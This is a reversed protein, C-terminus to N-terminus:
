QTIRAIEQKLEPLSGESSLKINRQKNRRKREEEVKNKKVSDDALKAGHAYWYFEFDDLSQLSGFARFAQELLEEQVNKPQKMKDSITAKLILFPPDQERDIAEDITKMAEEQISQKYQSLALNFLPASNRMSLRAAERYYKEERDHDGLEGAIIGMRNLILSKPKTRSLNILFDMAREKHGLKCELEVIEMVIQQQVRESLEKSRMQEELELIKNREVRPNDIASLPNEVTSEFGQEPGDKLSLRLHLVQNADMRYRLILSDGKSVIPQIKWTKNWLTRDDADLLEVKLPVEKTLSNEPVMLQKNEAWEGNAPFPLKTRNKILSVSGRKTNIKISSGTVPQILGKGRVALSLAQWAAGHAVATQISEMDNFRLIKAYAFYDEVAKDIQPILSSGGVLLCYNIEEPDLEVRNLVDELPAFVSCMQFYETERHYLLSRELFPKLVEDLEVASLNPSKLRLITGNRLTCSHEGPLKYVLKEHEKESYYGLEQKRKMERCLGIKLAEACGLLAPILCKAKDNYNLENSKLGNQKICQPILVETVIKRDIDGGGLRHYRSVALTAVEIAARAGPKPRGLEFLAVDCTGGGFDFVLLKSKESQVVFREQSHSSVYEIFAAIPEDLLAGPTLDINALKAAALTDQRQAGQFSAPVTVVTTTNKVGDDPVAEMLFKLLHGGIEKASRFGELAKHYTRRVGIDNKCDWFINEYEKLKYDGSLARLDKAGTGIFLKGEWLALISPVLTDFEPGHRTLQKVSLCSPKVEGQHDVSFVIEAVASNTTGLDIGIVRFTGLAALAPNKESPVLASFDM